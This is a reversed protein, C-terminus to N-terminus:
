SEFSTIEDESINLINDKVFVFIFLSYLAFLCLLITGFLFPDYSYFYSFISNLIMLILYIGVVFNSYKHNALKLNITEGNKVNVQIVQSKRWNVKTYIKHSGPIVKYEKTRSGQIEGVKKDDIYIGYFLFINLWDSRKEIKILAM